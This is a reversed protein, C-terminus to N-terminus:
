ITSVLFPELVKLLVRWRNGRLQCRLVQIVRNADLLGVHGLHHLGELLQHLSSDLFQFILRLNGRLAQVFGQIEGHCGRYGPVFRDCGRM